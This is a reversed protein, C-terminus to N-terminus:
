ETFQHIVVPPSSAHTFRLSFQWGLNVNLPQFPLVEENEADYFTLEAPGGWIPGMEMDDAWHAVLDDVLPQSTCVDWFMRRGLHRPCYDNTWRVPLEDPAYQREFDVRARLVLGLNEVNIFTRAGGHLGNYEHDAQHFHTFQVDSVKHPMGAHRGLFALWDRNVWSYLMYYYTEGDLECPVMFYSEAYELRKESVFEKAMLDNYHWGEYNFLYVRGSGDVELPEPTYERVADHDADFSIITMDGVIRHSPETMLDLMSAKGSPTVPYRWQKNNLIAM